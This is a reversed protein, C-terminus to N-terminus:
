MRPENFDVGSILVQLGIRLSELVKPKMLVKFRVLGFNRFGPKHLNKECQGLFLRFRPMFDSGTTTLAFAVTYEYIYTDPKQKCIFQIGNKILFM